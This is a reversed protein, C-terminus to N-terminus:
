GSLGEIGLMTSAQAEVQERVYDETYLNSPVKISGTTGSVLQFTVEVVARFTGQPTLEDFQRQAIVTWRGAM